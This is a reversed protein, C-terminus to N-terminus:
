LVPPFGIQNTVSLFVIISGWKLAPSRVSQASYLECSAHQVPKVSRSRITEVSETSRTVFGPSTCLGNDTSSCLLPKCCSTPEGSLLWAPGPFRQWFPGCNPTWCTFPWTRTWTHCWSRRRHTSASRRLTIVGVGTWLDLSTRWQVMFCCRWNNLHKQLVRMVTIKHSFVGSTISLPEWVSVRLLLLKESCSSVIVWEEWLPIPYSVIM